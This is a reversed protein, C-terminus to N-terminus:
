VMIAFWVGLAAIGGGALRLGAAGRASRIAYGGALVGVVHLALTAAVFGIAFVAPHALAPMETGHAHGHFLGFLGACVIALALDVTRNLLVALGLLIISGAIGYEVAPLQWGAMGAVGGLVMWALFSGPVAWIARGGIQASLLGVTLMALLHDIGFLPHLLGDAIGGDHGVHGLHAFAASATAAVIFVSLLFPRGHSM